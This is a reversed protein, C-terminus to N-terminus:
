DVGTGSCGTLYRLPLTMVTGSRSLVAPIVVLLVVVRLVGITPMARDDGRRLRAHSARTGHGTGSRAAVPAVALEDGEPVALPEGGVDGPGFGPQEIVVPM